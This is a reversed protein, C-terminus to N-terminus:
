TRTWYLPLLRHRFVKNTKRHLNPGWWRCLSVRSTADGSGGFLKQRCVRWSDRKHLLPVPVTANHKGNGTLICSLVDGTLNNTREVPSAGTLGKPWLARSRARSSIEGRACISRPVPIAGTVARQFRATYRHVGVGRSPAALSFRM